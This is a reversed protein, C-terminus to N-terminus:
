DDEEMVQAHALLAVLGVGGVVNGLLTPLLFGIAYEGWGVAGAFAAYAVEVSGAIIHSLQGLAVLYTLGIIVFPKASGALPLLWVLLAIIWGAFIAKAFTVAPSPEAAHIGLELFQEKAEPSFVGTGEVCFAFLLTGLINAMFVIAWLRLVDRLGVWSREYLLPLIVTLTNETFLQQRGLIVILFGFSYGFSSILPRWPEDPLGARLLGDGVMSFGMSLGAALASWMLSSTPRRLEEEGEKRVAEHVILTRPASINDVNEKERSALRSSPVHRTDAM